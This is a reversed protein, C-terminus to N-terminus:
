ATGARSLPVFVGITAAEPTEGDVAAITLLTIGFDELIKDAVEESVRRVDEITALGKCRENLEDCLIDVAMQTTSPALITLMRRRLDTLGFAGPLHRGLVSPVHPAHEVGEETEHIM